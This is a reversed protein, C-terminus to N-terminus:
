GMGALLRGNRGGSVPALLCEHSIKNDSINEDYYNNIFVILKGLNDTFTEEVPEFTSFHTFRPKPVFRERCM